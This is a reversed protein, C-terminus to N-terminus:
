AVALLGVRRLLLSLELDLLRSSVLAVSASASARVVPLTETVTLTSGGSRPLVVLEVTSAEGGGEPWWRFSLRRGADVEDVRVQRREGDETTAYGGGGPVPDLRTEGGLWSSRAEDDVIAEWVEDPAADLDVSRVVEAM